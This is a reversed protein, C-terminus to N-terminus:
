KQGGIRVFHFFAKKNTLTSGKGLFMIRVFPHPTLISTAVDSLIKYNNSTGGTINTNINAMSYAVNWPGSATWGFDIRTNVSDGAATTNMGIVFTTTTTGDFNGNPNVAWGAGAPLIAVATDGAAFSAPMTIEWGYIGSSGNFGYPTKSLYTAAAHAHGAVLCLAFAGLLSRMITKM